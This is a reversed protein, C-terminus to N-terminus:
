KQMWTKFDSLFQSILEDTKFHSIMDPFFKPPVTVIHAGAILSDRIDTVSRVSGVIIEVPLQNADIFARTDQVIKKPDFDQEDRIGCEVLRIKESADSEKNGADRIRGWMLSVYKAGAHAAMTAQTLSMCGTCNVAIGEDSLTKIVELENWGVPIKISLGSYALERNFMRAQELMEEPDDSFVEISLNAGPAYKELLGVIKSMHKLFDGKPEKALISPNTTIGKVFGRRLSDEIDNLNASDVFYKM